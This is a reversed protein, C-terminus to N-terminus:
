RTSRARATWRTRFVVCLPDLCTRIRQPQLTKPTKPSVAPEWRCVGNGHPDHFPDMRQATCGSLTRQSQCNTAFADLRQVLSQAQTPPNCTSCAPTDDLTKDKWSCTPLKRPCM